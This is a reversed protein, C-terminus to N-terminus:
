DWDDEDREPDGAHEREEYAYRPHRHWRRHIRRGAQMTVPESAPAASAAGVAAGVAAGIAAGAATSHNQSGIVAGATAVIIAGTTAAREQRETACASLALLLGAIWIKRM